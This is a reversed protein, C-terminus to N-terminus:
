LLINTTFSITLCQGTQSSRKRQVPWLCRLQCTSPPWRGCWDTRGAKQLERLALGLSLSPATLACVCLCDLWLSEMICNQHYYADLYLCVYLLFVSLKYKKVNDTFCCSMPRYACVCVTVCRNDGMAPVPVSPVWTNRRGSTEWRTCKGMTMVHQSMQLTFTVCDFCFFDKITYKKHMRIEVSM